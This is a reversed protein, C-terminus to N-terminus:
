ILIKNCIKEELTDVCGSQKKSIWWSHFDPKLLTFDLEQQLQEQFLLFQDTM